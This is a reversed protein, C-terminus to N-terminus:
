WGPQILGFGTRFNGNVIGRSNPPKDDGARALFRGQSEHLLGDEPANLYARFRRMAPPFKSKEYLLVAIFEYITAM